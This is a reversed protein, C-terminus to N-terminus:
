TCHAATLVRYSSLFSGGCFYTDDTILDVQWPFQCLGAIIGNTIHQHKKDLLVDVTAAYGANCILMNQYLLVFCWVVVSM